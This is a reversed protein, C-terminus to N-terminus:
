AFILPKIYNLHILLLFFEGGKCNDHVAFNDIYVLVVKQVLNYVYIQEATFNPKKVHHLPDIPNVGKQLEGRAALRHIVTKTM